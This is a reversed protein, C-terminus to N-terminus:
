RRGEMDAVPWQRLMLEGPVDKRARGFGSMQKMFFPVGACVLAMVLMFVLALLYVEVREIRRM